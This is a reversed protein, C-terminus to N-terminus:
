RYIATRGRIRVAIAAAVLAWTKNVRPLNRSVLVTIGFEGTILITHVLAAAAWKRFETALADDRKKWAAGSRGRGRRTSAPSRGISCRWVEQRTIDIQM